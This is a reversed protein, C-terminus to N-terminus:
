RLREADHDYWFMQKSIRGDSEMLAWPPTVAASVPLLLWNVTFRALGYPFAVYDEWGLRYVNHPHTEDTRGHSKEVFPDEFYLPEHQIAGCAVYVVTPEWGRNTQEAPDVRPMIDAATPTLWDATVSPGDERFQNPIRACGGAALLGSLAVALTIGFTARCTSRTTLGSKM